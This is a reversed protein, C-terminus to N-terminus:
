LVQYEIEMNQGAKAPHYYCEKRGAPIEATLDNERMAGAQLLGLLLLLLKCNLLM